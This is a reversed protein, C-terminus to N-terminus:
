SAPAEAPEAPAATAVAGEHHDLINGTIWGAVLSLLWTGLVM